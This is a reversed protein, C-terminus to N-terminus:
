RWSGVLVVGAPTATAGVHVSDGPRERSVLWLTVGGGLLSGGAVLLGTSWDAATKADGLTSASSADPCTTGQCQADNRKGLAVFGMVGGGILSAAGTGALIVGVISWPSAAPAPSSAPTPTPAATPAPAPAPVTAPAPADELAPIPVVTTAGDAAVQVTTSWTKKGTATAQVTHGGPEVALPVGLSALGLTTDDVRIVADTPLAGAASVSLKPVVHDLRALEREVDAAREDGATRALNLAQRWRTFASVLRKEHEECAALKALAGVTAKLRASEALRPCAAAYDGQKMLDRGANFLETAAAEDDARAAPAALTGALALALAFARLPAVTRM